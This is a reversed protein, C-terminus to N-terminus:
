QEKMHCFSSAIPSLYLTQLKITFM